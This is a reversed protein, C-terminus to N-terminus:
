YLGCGTGSSASAGSASSSGSSTCAGSDGSDHSGASSGDCYSCGSVCNACVCGGCNEGGCSGGFSSASSPTDANAKPINDFLNNFEGNLEQEPDAPALFIGFVVVVFMLGTKIYAFPKRANQLIEKAM